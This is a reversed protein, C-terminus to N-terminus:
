REGRKTSGTDVRLSRGEVQSLLLTIPDVAVKGTHDIAHSDRWAHKQRNKLWFICATTDGGIAREYLARAVKGDAITKGQRVAQHFAPQQKQWNRITSVNVGFFGALDADTAGLLCYNHALEAHEPLFTSPRAM